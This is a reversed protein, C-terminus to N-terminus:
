LGLYVMWFRFAIRLSLSWNPIDTQLQTPETQLQPIPQLQANM